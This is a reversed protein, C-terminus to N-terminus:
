SGAKRWAGDATKEARGEGALKILGALLNREALGHVSADVDDYVRKVLEALRRPEADLAAVTKQERFLRHEIYHRLTDQVRGTPQGHAPYLMTAPLALLRELSGLYIKLDGEPPDILITSVTSVMDGAILDGTREVFYCLHDRTHGPTHLVRVPGASGLDIVEGDKLPKDFALVPAGTRERVLSVAGVHDHHHHTLAIAEVKRGEAALGDILQVLKDRDTPDDTAPDIVLLRERGILYTNTHTAPPLTPTKGPFTIVAGSFRIRVPRHAFTEDSFGKMTALAARPGAAALHELLLLVPPALALDGTEFGAVWDRATHWRGSELEGEPIVSPDQGEPLVGLFFQNRFRRPTFPPTTKVGLPVLREGDIEAGLRALVDAFTTKNDLLERRLQPLLKVDLAGTALLVGAEEFLERAAAAYCERPTGPDAARVPIERDAADVRGGPFVYTSAFARQRRDRLVLFAESEDWSKVLITSASDIM